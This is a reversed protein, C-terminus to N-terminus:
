SGFQYTRSLGCTRPVQNGIESLRVQCGENPHWEFVKRLCVMHDEVTETAIVIDDIYAM